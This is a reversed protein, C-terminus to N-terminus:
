SRRQAIIYAISRGNLTKAVVQDRATEACTASSMALSACLEFDAIQYTPLNIRCSVDTMAVTTSLSEGATTADSLGRGAATALLQQLGEDQPCDGGHNTAKCQAHQAAVLPVYPSM